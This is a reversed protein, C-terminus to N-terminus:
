AIRRVAGAEDSLGERLSRSVPYLVRRVLREAMERVIQREVDSPLELRALVSDAEEYALRL